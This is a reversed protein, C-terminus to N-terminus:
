QKTANAWTFNMCSSVACFYKLKWVQSEWIQITKWNQYSLWKSSIPEHFDMLGPIWIIYKSVEVNGPPMWVIQNEFKHLTQSILLYEVTFPTSKIYMFIFFGLCKVSLRTSFYLDSPKGRATPALLHHLHTVNM